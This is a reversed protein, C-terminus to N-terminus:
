VLHKKKQSSIASSYMTFTMIRAHNQAYISFYTINTEPCIIYIFFKFIQVSVKM